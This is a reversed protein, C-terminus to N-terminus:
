VINKPAAAEMQLYRRKRRKCCLYTCPVIAIVSCVTFLTAGMTLYEESSPSFEVMENYSAFVFPDEKSRVQVFTDFQTENFVSNSVWAVESQKFYGENDCGGTYNEVVTLNDDVVVCIEVTNYQYYCAMTENDWYGKAQMRCVKANVAAYKKSHIPVEKLINTAMTNNRYISLILTATINFEKGASSNKMNDTWLQASVAYSLYPYVPFGPIAAAYVDSFNQLLPIPEATDLHLSISTNLFSPYEAKWSSLVSSLHSIEQSQPDRLAQILFYLGVGAGGLLVLILLYYRLSSAKVVIEENYIHM